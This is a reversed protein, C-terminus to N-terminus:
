CLLLYLLSINLYMTSMIMHIHHWGHGPCVEGWGVGGIRDINLCFVILSRFIGFFGKTALAFFSLIVSRVVSFDGITTMAWQRIMMQLHVWGARSRCLGDREFVAGMNGSCHIIFYGVGARNLVRAITEVGGM